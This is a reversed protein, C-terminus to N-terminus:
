TQLKIRQKMYQRPSLAYKKKFCKSFYNSDSFGSQEAVKQIQTANGSTLLAYAYKLQMERLYHNPSTNLFQKFLRELQRQSTFAAQAIDRSNLNINTFNQEIFILARGLAMTTQPLDQTQQQYMRALTVALQQMLSTLMMEFGTEGQEYEHGIAQILQTVIPLQEDNLTLQARYKNKQRAIPEVKFMAQYGSLRKLSPTEFFPSGAEFMLNIIRLDEVDQFAHEINGNIVFIDGAKLPYAYSSVLHNGKGSIVLFLESYDHRHLGFDQGHYCDLYAFKLHPYRQHHELHYTTNM